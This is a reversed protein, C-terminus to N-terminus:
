GGTSKKRGRPRGEETGQVMPTEREDTNAVQKIYDLHQEYMSSAMNAYAAYECNCSPKNINKGKIISMAKIHSDIWKSVRGLQRVQAYEGLLWQAQEKTM